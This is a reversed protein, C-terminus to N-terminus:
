DLSNPTIEYKVKEHVWAVVAEVTAKDNGSVRLKKAVERIGPDEVRALQDPALMRSREDTTLPRSANSPVASSPLVTMRLEDPGLVEVSIRDNDRPIATRAFSEA